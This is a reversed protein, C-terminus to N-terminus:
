PGGWLRVAVDFMTQARTAIADENWKDLRMLSRNLHLNSVEFFKERKILFERNQLGRNVGYHLLTLNGITAKAGERRRIALQRDSLKEGSLFALYASNAESQQAQTGDPLPWFEFWSTPLIHDVDLNELGGPLPEESHASRLGAEVEALVAKIRPADLRGPYVQEDVWAKRFEEDRPWRSADGELDSLALRLTDPSLESESLKKLLQLFVKNYNKTTLGCIARRVLYSTIYNYTQVQAAPALGASAIRLALSHTTSADWAAMRRGFAAIPDDGVGSILQQYNEANADLIRLQEKAKIPAGKPFAFRRYNTYLRGIEVEDGLVSQLATQLFWEIRPNRLRGRRQQEAWFPGEFQTWFTQYLENGDAGDRDARMFIFNRILDTAHLEAGHGNLTEFIVQADDEEGLSISVLRLDRLVAESIANIRRLRQGDTETSVWEKIEDAFYWIAELAPPHDVGIKKLTGTQTFSNPFRERLEALNTAKLALQFNGRDRFTPWVKFMETEPQQMTDTNENWLCGEVLTALTAQDEERLVIALAALFYQLTTFRQQGDIINSTEVGLLGSRQQPELVAAGLFHAPPQAGDLRAEAKESIDTWLREWQDEKNWVYPRQFFPVRYQRRDQFLQQVSMTESKM